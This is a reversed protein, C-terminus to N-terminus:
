FDRAVASLVAVAESTTITGYSGNTHAFLINIIENKKDKEEEEEEKKKEYKSTHVKREGGLKMDHTMYLRALNVYFLCFIAM